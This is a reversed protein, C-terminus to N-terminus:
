GQPASHAPYLSTFNTMLGIRLIADAMHPTLLRSAVLVGIDLDAVGAPTVVRGGKILLDLM